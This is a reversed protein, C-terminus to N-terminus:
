NLKTVVERFTKRIDSQTVPVTRYLGNGLNAMKKLEKSDIDGLVIASFTMNYKDKLQSPMTQQPLDTRYRMARNSSTVYILHKRIKRPLAQGLNELLRPLNEHVSPDVYLDQLNTEKITGEFAMFCRVQNGTLKKLDDMTFSDRISKLGKQMQRGAINILFYYQPPRAALSVVLTDPSEDKLNLTYTKGQYINDEIVSLVYRASGKCSLALALKIEPNKSTAKLTQKFGKNGKLLLKPGAGSVFGDLKLVLDKKPAQTIEIGFPEESFRKLLMPTITQPRIQYAKGKVPGEFLLYNTKSRDLPIIESRSDAKRIVKGTMDKVILIGKPNKDSRGSCSVFRVPVAVSGGKKKEKHAFGKSNLLQDPEFVIRQPNEKSTERIKDIALAEVPLETAKSAPNGFHYRITMKRTSPLPCFKFFLSGNGDVRNKDVVRKASIDFLEFYVNNNSLFNPASNDGAPVIKLFYEVCEQPAQKTEAWLCTVCSLCVFLASLFFTVISM